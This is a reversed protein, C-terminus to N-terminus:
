YETVFGSADHGRNARVNLIKHNALLHGDLGPNHALVTAVAGLVTVVEALIKPKSTASLGKGVKISGELLVHIVWGM